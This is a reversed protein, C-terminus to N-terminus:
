PQWCQLGILCLCVPRFPGQRSSNGPYGPFAPSPPLGRLDADDPHRGGHDNGPNEVQERAGPQYRGQVGPPLGTSWERESPSRTWSPRTRKRTRCKLVTSDKTLSAASERFPAPGKAVVVGVAPRACNYSKDFTELLVKGTQKERIAWSATKM